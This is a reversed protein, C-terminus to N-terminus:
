ARKIHDGVKNLREQHFRMEKKLDTLLLEDTDTVIMIRKQYGKLLKKIEKKEQLLLAIQAHDRTKSGGEFKLSDSQGSDSQSAGDQNDLPLTITSVVKM